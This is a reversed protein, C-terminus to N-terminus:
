KAAPLLALFFKRTHNLISRRKRNMASGLEEELLAVVRKVGPIEDASFPKPDKIYKM